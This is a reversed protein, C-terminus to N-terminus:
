YIYLNYLTTTNLVRFILLCSTGWRPLIGSELYFEMGSESVVKPADILAIKFKDQLLKRGISSIEQGLFYEINNLSFSGFTPPNGESLQSLVGAIKMLEDKDQVELKQEEIYQSITDYIPDGIGSLFSSSFLTLSAIQLM